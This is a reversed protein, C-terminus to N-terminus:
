APHSPLRGTTVVAPIPPLHTLGVTAAAASASPALEVDPLFYAIAEQLGPVDVLNNYCADLIPLHLPLGFAPIEPVRTIGKVLRDDCAVALTLDPGRGRAEAYADASRIAIRVPLKAREAIGLIGEIQCLDCETCRALDKVVKKPCRNWVVCHPLLVLVDKPKRRAYLARVAANNAQVFARLLPDTKDGILGATRLLVRLVIRDVFFAWTRMWLRPQRRSFPLLLGGLYVLAALSLLLGVGVLGWGPLTGALARGGGALLLGTLTALCAAGLRRAHWEGPGAAVDLFAGAQGPFPLQRV